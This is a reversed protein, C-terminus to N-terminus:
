NRRLWQHNSVNISEYFVLILTQLRLDNPCGFANATANLKQRKSPSAPIGLVLKRLFLKMDREVRSYRWKLRGGAPCSYENQEPHYVFREQWVQRGSQCGVHRAQALHPCHRAASIVGTPSSMSNPPQWRTKPGHQWTPSNTATM